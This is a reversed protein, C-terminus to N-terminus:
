EHWPYFTFMFQSYGVDPFPNCPRGACYFHAPWTLAYYSVGVFNIPPVYFKVILGWTLGWVLYLAGLGTAINKLHRM